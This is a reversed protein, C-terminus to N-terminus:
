IGLSHRFHSIYDECDVDSQIAAAVVGFHNGICLDMFIKRVEHSVNVQEDKSACGILQHNRKPGIDCFVM